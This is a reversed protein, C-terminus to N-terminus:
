DVSDGLHGQQVMRADKETIQCSAHYLNHFIKIESLIKSLFHHSLPGLTLQTRQTRGAAHLPTKKALLYGGRGWPLGKGAEPADPADEWPLVNCGSLVWHRSAHVMVAESETRGSPRLRVAREGCGRGRLITRKSYSVRSLSTGQQTRYLRLSQLRRLQGCSSPLHSLLNCPLM